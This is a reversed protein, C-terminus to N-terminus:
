FNKLLSHILVIKIGFFGKDITHSIPQLLELNHTPFLNPHNQLKGSSLLHYSIILDPLVFGVKLLWRVPIFTTRSCFFYQLCTLWLGSQQFEQGVCNHLNGGTARAWGKDRLAWNEEDKFLNQQTIKKRGGLIPIIGWAKM